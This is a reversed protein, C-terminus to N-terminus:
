KLGMQQSKPYFHLVDVNAWSFPTLLVHGVFKQMYINAKQSFGTQIHKCTGLLEVYSVLPPFM